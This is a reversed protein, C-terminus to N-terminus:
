SGWPSRYELFRETGDEGRLRLILVPERSLSNMLTVSADPSDVLQGNIELVVDREKLGVLEWFSGEQIRSVRVGQVADSRLDYLPEVKAGGYLGPPSRIGIEAGQDRHEPIEPAEPPANRELRPLASEVSIEPPIPAEASTSGHSASLPSAADRTPVDTPAADPRWWLWVLVGVVLGGLAL